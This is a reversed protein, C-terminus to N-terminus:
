PTPDVLAYMTIAADAANTVYLGTVDSAGLPNTQGGMPWVYPEDAALTITKTPSGGSNVEITAAVDSKLYLSVLASVDIAVSILTDTGATISEQINVESNATYTKSATDTASGSSFNRSHTHSFAM